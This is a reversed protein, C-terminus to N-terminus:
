NDVIIKQAGTDTRVVYVGAPISLRLVAGENVMGQWMQRGDVAYVGIHQAAFAQVSLTQSGAYVYLMYRSVHPLATNGAQENDDHPHMVALGHRTIREVKDTNEDSVAAYVQCPLIIHSGQRKEFDYHTEGGKEKREPVFLTAAAITDNHLTLNGQTLIVDDDIYAPQVPSYNGSGTLTQPGLGEFVLYKGDWYNSSDSPLMFTYIRGKKMWVGELTPQVYQWNSSFQTADSDTRLTWEGIGNLINLEEALPDMTRQVQEYLYFHSQAAGAGAVSPSYPQLRYPENNLQKSCIDILNMSVGSGKGSLIDPCLSTVITQALQGDAEGQRALFEDQTEGQQRPTPTTEIVYINSIDYPAVMMNWENSRFSLMTYLNKEITYDGNNIIGSYEKNGGKDIATQVGINGVGPVNVKAYTKTYENLRAYLMYLNEQNHNGDLTKAYVEVDGGMTLVGNAGMRPIVTVWNHTYKKEKDTCDIDPLYPYIYWKGDNMDQVPTLSATGYGPISASVTGLVADRPQATVDIEARCLRKGVSNAPAIGQEASADCAYVRCNNFTGGDIKTNYPLRLDSYDKYWGNIVVDISDKHETAPHTTFTGDEIKVDNLYQTGNDASSGSSVSSGVGFLRIGSFRMLRYCVAMSCVYYMSNTRPTHMVYRGGRFVCTGRANGLDISPTGLNDDVRLDLKGNTRYTVSLNAADQPWLDDFVLHATKSAYDDVGEGSAIVPRVAVPAAVEDIITALTSTVPSGDAAQIDTKAGGVLLNDGCLHFRATFGNNEGDTSIAVPSSMGKVPRSILDNLSKSVSKRKTKISLNDIYIDVAENDHGAIQIFGDKEEGVGAYASMCIGSFYLRKGNVDTIVPYGQTTCSNFMSIDYLYAMDNHKEFRMMIVDHEGADDYLLYLTDFLAKGNNDFVHQRLTPFQDAVIDDFMADTAADGTDFGTSKLLYDQAGTEGAALMLVICLAAKAKKRRLLKCCLYILLLLLLVGAGDPLPANFYRDQLWSRWQEFLDPNWGNGGYTSNWWQEFDDLSGGGGTASSWENYWNEWTSGTTPPAKRMAFARYENNSAQPEKTNVALDAIPTHQVPAAMPSLTWIQIQPVYSYQVKNNERAYTMGPVTAYPLNAGYTRVAATGYTRIPLALEPASAQSVPTHINLKRAYPKYTNVSQMPLTPMETVHTVAIEKKEYILGDELVYGFLLMSLLAVAMM